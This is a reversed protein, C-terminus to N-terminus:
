GDYTMLRNSGLGTILNLSEERSRIIARIGSNSSLQDEISMANGSKTKQIDRIAEAMWM